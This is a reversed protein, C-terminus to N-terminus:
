QAPKPDEEEEEREDREEVFEQLEDLAAEFYDELAAEIRARLEDPDEVEELLNAEPDAPLTEAVERIKTGFTIMKAAIQRIRERDAPPLDEAIELLRDRLSLAHRVTHRLQSLLTPNQPSM